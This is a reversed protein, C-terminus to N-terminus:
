YTIKIRRADLVVLWIDNLNSRAVMKSISIDLEEKYIIQKLDGAGDANRMKAFVEYAPRFLAQATKM